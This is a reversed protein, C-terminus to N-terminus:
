ASPTIYEFIAYALTLAFRADERTVVPQTNSDAHNAQVHPGLHLFRYIGNVADRAKEKKEPHASAFFSEFFEKTAKESGFSKALAEFSLRLTTLVQKYHGSAFLKEAEEVRAYSNRFNEGTASGPFEIEVVKIHSLNWASLVRDIWHSRPVTLELFGSSARTVEFKQQAPHWLVGTLMVQFYADKGARTEEFRSIQRRDLTVLAEQHRFFPEPNPVEALPGVDFSAFEGLPQCQLKGALRVLTYDVDKQQGAHLLQLQLPLYLAPQGAMDRGQVNNSELRITIVNRGGVPLWVESM